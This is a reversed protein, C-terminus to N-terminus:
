GLAMVQGADCAQLYALTAPSYRWTTQVLPTADDPLTEFLLATDHATITADLRRTVDHDGAIRGIIETTPTPTAPATGLLERCIESDQWATITEGLCILGKGHRVFYELAESQEDNPVRTTCAVVVDYEGLHQLRDLRATREIQIQGSATVYDRLDRWGATQAVDGDDDLWLARVM